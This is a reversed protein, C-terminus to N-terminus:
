EGQRVIRSKEGWLWERSTACDCVGHDRAHKFVVCNDVLRAIYSTYKLHAMNKYPVLAIRTCPHTHACSRTTITRHAAVPTHHTRPRSHRGVIQCFLLPPHRPHHMQEPRFRQVYLELHTHHNASWPCSQAGSRRTTAFQVDIRQRPRVWSATYM